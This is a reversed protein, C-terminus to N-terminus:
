CTQGSQSLLSPIWPSVIRLYFCAAATHTGIFSRQRQQARTHSSPKTQDREREAGATGNLFHLHLREVWFDPSNHGCPNALLVVVIIPLQKQEALPRFSKVSFSRPSLFETVIKQGTQNIANKERWGKLDPESFRESRFGCSTFPRGRVCYRWDHPRRSLSM